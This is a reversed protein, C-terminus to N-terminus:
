IRFGNDRARDEIAREMAEARSCNHKRQYFAILGDKRTESLMSFVANFRSSNSGPENSGSVRLIRSKGVLAMTLRKLANRLGFFSALVGM